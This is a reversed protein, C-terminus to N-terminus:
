KGLATGSKIKIFKSRSTGIVSFVSDARVKDESFVCGESQDMKMAKTFIGRSTTYGVELLRGIETQTLYYAKLMQEETRIKKM